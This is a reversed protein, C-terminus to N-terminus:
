SLPRVECWKRRPLGLLKPVRIGIVPQEPRDAIVAMYGNRRLEMEWLRVEPKQIVHVRSLRCFMISINLALRINQRKTFTQVLAEHRTESALLIGGATTVRFVERVALDYREIHSFAFNSTVCAFSEDPFTIRRADNGLIRHRTGRVRARAQAVAFCLFDKDIATITTM